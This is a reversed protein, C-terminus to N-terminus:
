KIVVFASSYGKYLGKVGYDKYLEVVSSLLSKNATQGSSTIVALRTRAVDLPFTLTIATLGTLAGCISTYYVSNQREKQGRIIINKFFEFSYFEIASFPFIRAISASNGKFPGSVGQTRIIKKLTQIANLNKYGESEVQRL